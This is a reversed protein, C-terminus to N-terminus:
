ESARNRLREHFEDREHKEDGHVEFHLLLSLVVRMVIIAALVYMESLERVVITKLIEAGLNFELGLALSEGLILKINYDKNNIHKKVYYYIAKIAGIAIIIVGVLELIVILEPVIVHLINELLGAHEASAEATLWLLGNM